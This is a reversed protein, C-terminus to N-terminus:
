EVGLVVDCIHHIDAAALTPHNPLHFALDHVRDAMPLAQVGYRRTFFPQRGMSGGGLPRTEIKGAALAQGIRDRHEVSRALAAFSISAIQARPNRQVQLRAGLREQYVRHNEVRRAIVADAAELQMLGLKAQVDTPRVNFGPLYFTFRRNFEHVGAARALAAEKAPELDKAWGHSRLMLLLDNLDPDDTCVVGGEITSLHHGYYTSFSSLDGFSGVLKGDFRSGFAPCADEMLLFGHRAKLALLREMDNPVGLTHVAIVCGPQHAACLRELHELDLGFTAADADCLIPEFGLQLAPALTTAWAVAPVVVQRNRLRGSELLAAYMLLNASSGSNVFVAHRTGLWRAWAREYEVTVAGMTLWPHTRLWDAIADLEANSITRDALLYRDPM